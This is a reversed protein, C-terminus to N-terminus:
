RNEIEKNEKNGENTRVSANPLKQAAFERAYESGDGSCNGSRYKAMPERGLDTGIMYM